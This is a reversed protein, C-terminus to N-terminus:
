RDGCAFASADTGQGDRHPDLKADVSPLNSSTDFLSRQQAGEILDALQAFAQVVPGDPGDNGLRRLLDADFAEAGM